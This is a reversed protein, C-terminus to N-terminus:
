GHIYGDLGPTDVYCGNDGPARACDFIQRNMGKFDQIAYVVENSHADVGVYAGLEPCAETGCKSFRVHTEWLLRTEAASPSHAPSWVLNPTDFRAELDGFEPLLVRAENEALKLADDQTVQPLNDLPLETVVGNSALYVEGEGNVHVRVSANRVALGLHEQHFVVHSMGLKDQKVQIVKLQARPDTLGLRDAQRALFTWATAEAQAESVPSISATRSSVGQPRLFLVRDGHRSRQELVAANGATAALSVALLLFASLRPKM